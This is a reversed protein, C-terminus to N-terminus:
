LGALVTATTAIPDLKKITTGRHHFSEAKIPINRL